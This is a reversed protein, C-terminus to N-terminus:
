PFFTEIKIASTAIPPLLSQQEGGDRLFANTDALKRAQLLLPAVFSRLHRVNATM